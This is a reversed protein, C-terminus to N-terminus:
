RPERACRPSSAHVRGATGSRRSPRLRGLRRRSPTPHEKPTRDSYNQRWGPTAARAHRRPISSYKSSSFLADTEAHLGDHRQLVLTRGGARLQAVGSAPRAGSARWSSSTASSSIPRRPSTTAVVIPTTACGTWSTPRPAGVRATRTSIRAGCSSSSRMSASRATRKRAQAREAGSALGRRDDAAHHSRQHARWSTKPGPRPGPVDSGGSILSRRATAQTRSDNESDCAKDIGIRM